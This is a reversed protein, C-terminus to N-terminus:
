FARIVSLSINESLPDHHEVIVVPKQRREITM